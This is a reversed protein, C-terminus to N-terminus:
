QCIVAAHKEIRKHSQVTGLEPRAKSHASMDASQFRRCTAASWLDIEAFAFLDTRTWHAIPVNQYEENM